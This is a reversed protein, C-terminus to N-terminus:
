QFSKFANSDILISTLLHVPHHDSVSIFTASTNFRSFTPLSPQPPLRLGQLTAKIEATDEKTVSIFPITCLLMFGHLLHQVESYGWVKGWQRANAEWDDHMLLLNASTKINRHSQPTLLHSHSQQWCLYVCAPQLFYIHPKAKLCAVSLPSRGLLHKANVGFTFDCQANITHQKKVGNASGLIFERWIYMSLLFLVFRCLRAHSVENLHKWHRWADQDMNLSESSSWEKLFQLKSDNIINIKSIINMDLMKLLKWNHLDTTLLM